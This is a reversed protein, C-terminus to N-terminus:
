PPPPSVSPPLLRRLLTITWLDESERAVIQFSLELAVWLSFPPPPLSLKDCDSRLCVQTAELMDQPIAPSVVRASADLGAVAFFSLPPPSSPPSPSPPPSPFLFQSVLSEKMEEDPRDALSLSAISVDPPASFVSEFSSLIRFLPPPSSFSSV